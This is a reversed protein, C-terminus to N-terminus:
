ETKTIKFTNTSGKNDKINVFYVGPALAATNLNYVSGAALEVTEKSIMVKGAVDTVTITSTRNDTGSYAISLTKNVPNPYVNYNSNTLLDPMTTEGNGAPNSGRQAAGNLIDVGFSVNGYL